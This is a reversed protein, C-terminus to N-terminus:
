DSRSRIVITPGEKKPPAFQRSELAELTNDAKESADDAVALRTADESLAHGWSAPFYLTHGLLKDLISSRVEYILFPTEALRIFINAVQGILRGSDTVVKVGILNNKALPSAKLPSDQQPITAEDNDVMVADPGISHVARYDILHLSEDTMKVALGILEGKAPDIILDHIQGLKNATARSLVARGILVNITQIAGTGAM